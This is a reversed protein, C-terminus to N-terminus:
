KQAKQAKERGNWTKNKRLPKASNGRFERLEEFKRRDKHGKHDKRITIQAKLLPFFDLARRLGEVNAVLL